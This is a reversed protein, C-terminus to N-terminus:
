DSEPTGPPLTSASARLRQNTQAVFEAVSQGPGPPLRLQGLEAADLRPLRLLMDEPRFQALTARVLGADGTRLARLVRWHIFRVAAVRTVATQDAIKLLAEVKAPAAGEAWALLTLYPGATEFRLGADIAAMAQPYLAWPADDGRLCGLAVAEYAEVVRAQGTEKKLAALVDTLLPEGCKTLLALEAAALRVEPSRDSLAAKLVAGYPDKGGHTQTKAAEIRARVAADPDASLLAAIVAFGVPM